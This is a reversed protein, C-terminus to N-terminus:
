QQPEKTVEAAEECTATTEAAASKKAERKIIYNMLFIVLIGAIVMLISWFQSPSVISVLEGRDDGRLYENFFRFIGYSILYVSLNHKFDKKMVLWFCIGFMIFLFAAEYLQTPHVPNPLHPFKVGLFFDTEKGHCCGAFFCGIRGFGHAILISCPVISLVDVLKSMYRKRCLLYILLFCAVGGILGGIFTIGSGLNFGGAPNEIWNYFAQFVAASGFGVVISVIGNYFVFDTFSEQIKFKKSYLFLVVFAAVIGVAIM